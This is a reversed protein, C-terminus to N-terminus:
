GWKSWSTMIPLQNYDAHIIKAQNDWVYVCLYIYVHAWMIVKGFDKMDEM